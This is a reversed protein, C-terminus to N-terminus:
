KTEALISASTGPAQEELDTNNSLHICHNKYEDYQDSHTHLKLKRKNDTENSISYCDCSQDCEKCEAVIMQKVLCKRKLEEMMSGVTEKSEYVRSRSFINSLFSVKKTSIKDKPLLVFMLDYTCRSIVQPLYYKLFYEIQSVVIVVHDFEMGNVNCFNSSFIMKSKNEQLYVRIDEVYSFPEESIRLLLQITRRLIRPQEESMHLITTREKEDIFKQLVLAFAIVAVDSSLEIDDSFEVIDPKLGEIDVGQIPDCLFGFKSVIKSRGYHSKKLSTSTKFAQDLDMGRGLSKFAKNSNNSHNSIKKNMSSGMELYNSELENASIMNKKNDEPQQQQKVPFKSSDNSPNSFKKQVLTSVDPYNTEPVSDPVVSKKTDEQQQKQGLTFKSSANSPYSVKENMSKEEELYNSESVSSPVMDKKNDKKKKRQEFTFSDMKIRFVSKFVKRVFNQTCKTIECIENSCRLVQDLKVIKFTTKLERFMCTEGAYSKKGVNWSRNKMLPQALLIINSERLDSSEVIKTIKAAENRSLTEGDYEEIILHHNIKATESTSIKLKVITQFIASLNDGVSNHYVFMSKGPSEVIDQIGSTFKIKRSSIGVYKRLNEEMVFHLNSKCDFNIYIIKENQKLSKWILELKKLGLISKGSGYSGQIVIHKAESFYIDMQQPTYLLYTQRFQQSRENTLTPLGKQQVAMFCSIEAVLNDFLKSQKKPNALNWWGEYSEIFKLWSKFTTSSEFVEYLPSFLNCFSCEVLEEKKGNERILLGVVTVGSAQIEKFHLTLFYKVMAAINKWCHSIHSGKAVKECIFIVNKQEIYAIYSTSKNAPEVGLNVKTEGKDYGLFELHKVINYNKFIFGRCKSESCLFSLANIIPDRESPVAIFSSARYYRNFYSECKGKWDVVKFVNTGIKGAGRHIEIEKDNDRSMVTVNQKLAKRDENGMHCVITYGYGEFTTIHSELCM